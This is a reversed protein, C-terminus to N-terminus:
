VSRGTIREEERGNLVGDQIETGSHTMPIIVGNLPYKRVEDWDKERKRKAFIAAKEWALKTLPINEENKGETRVIHHDKRGFPISPFHIKM